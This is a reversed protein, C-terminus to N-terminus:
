QSCLGIAAATKANQRARHIKWWRRALPTADHKRLSRDCVYDSEVALDTYFKAAEGLGALRMM